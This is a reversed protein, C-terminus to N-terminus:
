PMPPSEISHQIATLSENVDEVAKKGGVLGFVQLIVSIVAVVLLCTLLGAIKDLRKENSRYDVVDYQTM